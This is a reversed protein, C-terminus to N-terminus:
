SEFEKGFVLEHRIQKEMKDMDEESLVEEFYMVMLHLRNQFKMFAFTLGPPYINSPFNWADKIKHNKFELFGPPHDAAVTFLFSALSGGKPGKIWFYYLPSPTRRLFRMLIDYDRSINSKLQDVMQQNISTVTQKLSPLLTAKLRYFMFSLHNGLLPGRVGKKRQDRPVPIWFDHVPIKKEVLLTRVSRAACALYLASRGFQAGLSPGVNDLQTTEEATFRIIRIKQNTNIRKKGPLFIGSLPKRSIRDVFFKARTAKLLESWKLKAQISDNYIQLEKESLNNALQKMLLIAGYGDMLLHHWSFILTSDGNSRLLIDFSLLPPVDGSIKRNIIEEPILTDTQFVTIPIESVPDNEIWTPIALPYKKEATLHALRLLNRNSQINLRIQSVDLQGELELLYRCTNNSADLRKIHQKELALMFCDAPTLLINSLDEKAKM